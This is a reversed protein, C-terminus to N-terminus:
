SWLWVEKKSSFLWKSSKSNWSSSFIWTSLLVSFFIIKYCNQLKLKGAVTSGKGPQLIEAFAMIKKM